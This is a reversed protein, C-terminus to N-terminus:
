AGEPAEITVPEGFRSVDIERSVNAPEGAAIPGEARVRRLISDDKGIWFIAKVKTDSPPNGLLPSIDTATVSGAVRYTDAGGVQEEGDIALDTAGKMVALVGRAPDFFPIPSTKVDVEQWLGTLPNKIWTRDAVVVLQTSLPTGALTGSADAQLRDPVVVDGEAASLQIGTTSAPQHEIDLVFHFTQLGGTAAVSASVVSEATPAGDGGGCASAALAAALVVISSTLRKV